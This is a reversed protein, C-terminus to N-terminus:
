FRHSGGGGHHHSSYHHSSHHHSSGHHHGSSSTVIHRKTSVFIAEPETEFFVPVSLNKDYDLKKRIPNHRKSFAICLVIILGLMLSLVAFSVFKMPESIRGGSSVDYMQKFASVACEYYKGKTAYSSVNDTISNAYSSGIYNYMTGQSFIALQRANMDISFVCASEATTVKNLKIEADQTAVASLTQSDTYFVTDGFSTLKTMYELLSNEEYDSLLYANDVIIASYNTDPNVYKKQQSTTGYTSPNTTGYSYNEANIINQSESIAFVILVTLFVVFFRSIYNINKKYFLFFLEKLLSGVVLTTLSPWM